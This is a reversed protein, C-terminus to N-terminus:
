RSNPLRYGLHTPPQSHADVAFMLRPQREVFQTIAQSKQLFQAIEGTSSRRSPPKAM